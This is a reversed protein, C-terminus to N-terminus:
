IKEEFSNIAQKITEKDIAKMKEFPLKRMRHFLVMPAINEIDEKIVETRGNLAARTMAAKMLTIDGRHGDINFNIGLM